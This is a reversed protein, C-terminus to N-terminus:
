DIYHSLKPSFIIESYCFKEIEQSLIQIGNRCHFYFCNQQYLFLKLYLINVKM